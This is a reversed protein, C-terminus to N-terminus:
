IKVWRGNERLSTQAAALVKIVRLGAAGDSRPTKNKLICHIFHECERKLPESMDIKPAVIDGFRVVLSTLPYIFKQKKQKKFGKDYIKVKESSEMDDFVAMKKSGVITLRRVKFPNLWSIHIHIFIKNSMQLNIFVVDEIGKQLYSQGYASVRIPEKDLLFNVMSIDHPALSWLANEDKRLVGLNVRQSYVYYIKGLENKTILERMKEVAPHYELIHGVMLKIRKKAALNVLSSSDKISMALPKEVFVHKGKQIAQLALEYHTVASTAIVITDIEGDSILDDFKRTFSSNPLLRRAKELSISNKDCCSKINAGKVTSFAKLLNTGWSGLGVFGINVM